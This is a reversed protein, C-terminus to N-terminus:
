TPIERVGAREAIVHKTRVLAEPLGFVFAGDSREQAAKWVTYVATQDLAVVIDATLFSNLADPDRFAIMTTATAADKRRAIRRVVRGRWISQVWQTSLRNFQGEVRPRLQYANIPWDYGDTQPKRRTAIDIKAGLELLPPIGAELSMLSPHGGAIMFITVPKNNTM